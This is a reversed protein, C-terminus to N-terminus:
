AVALMPQSNCSTTQATQATQTYHAVASFRISVSNGSTTSATSPDAEDAAAPTGSAAAGAFSQALASLFTTLSPQSSGNSPAASLMQSFREALDGFMTGIAPVEEAVGPQALRQTLPGLQSDFSTYALRLRVSVSGANSTAPAAPTAAAPEAVVVPETTVPADPVGPVEPLAVPDTSATNLADTLVAPSATPASMQPEAGYLTKLASFLAESFSQLASSFDGNGADDSSTELSLKFKADVSGNPGSVHIQARLEVEFETSPAAAEEPVDVANDTAQTLGGLTQEIKLKLQSLAEHRDERRDERREERRETRREHGHHYRRVAGSGEARESYPTGATATAATAISLSTDM